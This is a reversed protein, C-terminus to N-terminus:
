RCTSALYPRSAAHSNSAATSKRWAPADDLCRPASRRNMAVSGPTRAVPVEVVIPVSREPSVRCSGAFRTPEFDLRDEVRLGGFEELEARDHGVGSEVLVDWRRRLHRRIVGHRRPLVALGVRVDVEKVGAYRIAGAVRRRAGRGGRRPPREAGRPGRQRTRGIGLAVLGSRDALSGSATTWRSSACARPRAGARADLPAVGGAPAGHAGGREAPGPGGRGPEGGALAGDPPLLLQRRDRLAPARAPTRGGPEGRPTRRRPGARRRALPRPDGPARDARRRRHGPPRRCFSRFDHRASCCTPRRACPSWTSRTACTGPSAPSCRTPSPRTGCWTATPGAPPRAGPTSTRRRGGRGPAGRGRPGAPPQPRPRPGRRRLRHAPLDVHVVQGRAHVGADTRGACTLLPPESLRATRELAQRLAGAM